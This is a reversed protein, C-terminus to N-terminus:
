FDQFSLRDFLVEIRLLQTRSFVKLLANSLSADESNQFQNAVLYKRVLEAKEVARQNLHEAQYLCLHLKEDISMSM